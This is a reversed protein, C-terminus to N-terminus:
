RLLIMKRSQIQHGSRLRYLFVGSAVQRGQADCGDWIVSHDGKTRRGQVLTKIKQGLLNYVTLRVRNNEPIHYTITTAANFPNPYNPSLTFQPRTGGTSFEQGKIATAETKPDFSFLYGNATVILATSDGMRIERYPGTQENLKLSIFTNSHANYALFDYPQAATYMVAVMGRAPASVTSTYYDAVIERIDRTYASFAFYHGANNSAIFFKERGYTHKQYDYDSQWGLSFALDQNAPVDHIKLHGDGKDYTCIFDEGFFWKGDSALPLVSWADRTPAYVTIQKAEGYAQSGYYYYKSKIQEFDYTYYPQQITRVSDNQTNFSYLFITQSLARQCLAIGWHANLHFLTANAYGETPPPLEVTHQRGTQRNNFILHYTDYGCFFDSGAFYGHEPLNSHLVSKGVNITENSSGDYFHATIESNAPDDTTLIGAQFGTSMGDFNKDGTGVEFHNQWFASHRTDGAFNYRTSGPASQHPIYYTAMFVTSRAVPDNQSIVADFYRNPKVPDFFGNAASYMTFFYDSEPIGGNVWCAFGDDLMHWQLNVSSKEEFVHRSKSFAILKSESTSQDTIAVAVYNKKGYASYTFYPGNGPNSYAYVFWRQLDHDFIYLYRTTLIYSLARTNGPVNYPPSGSHIIEGLYHLDHFLSHLADYLVLVSDNWVLAANEGAYVNSGTPSLRFPHTHWQHSFLDFAFVSDASKSPYYILCNGGVAQMHDYAFPLGSYTQLWRGTQRANQAKGGALALFILGFVCVSKM